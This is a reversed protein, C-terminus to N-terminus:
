LTRFSGLPRFGSDGFQLGANVNTKAHAPPLKSATGRHAVVCCAILMAQQDPPLNYLHRSGKNCVGVYHSPITPYLNRGPQITGDPVGFQLNLARLQVKDADDVARKTVNELHTFVGQVCSMYRQLTTTMATTEKMMTKSMEDLKLVKQADSLRERVQFLINLM